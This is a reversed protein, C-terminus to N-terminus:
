IVIWEKDINKKHYPILQKNKLNYVVLDTNCSLNTPIQSNFPISVIPLHEFILKKTDNNKLIKKTILQNSIIDNSINSKKSKKFFNQKSEFFLYSLFFGSIIIITGGFIYKNM